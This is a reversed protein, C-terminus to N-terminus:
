TGHVISSLRSPSKIDFRKVKGGEIRFVHRVMEDLLPAGMLDRVTQHVEVATSGDPEQRIGTPEVHPDITTWQETWYARVAEHGRVHGGDMGNAWEVDEALAALVDDINRANFGSYLRQVLETDHSM